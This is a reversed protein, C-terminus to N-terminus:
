TAQVQLPEPGAAMLRAVELRQGAGVRLLGLLSGGADYGCVTAGEALDLGFAVTRGHRIADSDVPDLDVRPLGALARDVPLLWDPAADLHGGADRWAALDELRLMAASEFPAVWLRRLATLHGLTGLGNAIDEGLVRVYTGKSCEVEFEIEGPGIGLLRLRHLEIRRAAREVTEGRRALEYLREGGHKLASVMPPVQLVVGELAALVAGVSDVDLAPVQAERVVKGMADGTDTAVGLSLRARYAKRGGLVLGCAKTAQGFCLPLMGTAMPDLTGAHGAKAASLLQRAQQLAQNSSLGGPKDLLVIGDVRRRPARPLANRGAGTNM